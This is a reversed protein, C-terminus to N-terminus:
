AIDTQQNHETVVADDLVPHDLSDVAFGQERRVYFLEEFCQTGGSLVEAIENHVVGLNLAVLVEYLQSQIVFHPNDEHRGVTLAHIGDLAEQILEVAFKPLLLEAVVSLQCHQYSLLQLIAFSLLEPIEVFLDLQVDTEGQIFFL